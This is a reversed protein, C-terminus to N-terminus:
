SIRQRTAPRPFIPDRPELWFFFLVAQDDGAAELM